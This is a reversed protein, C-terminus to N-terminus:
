DPAAGRAADPHESMFHHLVGYLARAHVVDDRHLADRIDECIMRQIVQFGKAEHALYAGLAAANVPPLHEHEAIAEIEPRTLDTMDAIDDMTIM